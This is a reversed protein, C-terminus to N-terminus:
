SIYETEKLEADNGDYQSLVVRPSDLSSKTDKGVSVAMLCKKIMYNLLM